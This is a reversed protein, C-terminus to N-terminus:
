EVREVRLMRDGVGLEWLVDMGSVVGGFRTYRGDLHPTASHTIFFQCSETDPGASALGVSGAVFPTRGIETRLTWPMGGYGDGRPCGGQVVFNPVMRHFAKGNYYGATVLSDFAVSTGPCDNVDTAIIIEGKNTTIRYQQGQKLAKLRALDIPHNFPPPRYEPQPRSELHSVAKDIALAVEFDRPLELMKELAGLRPSLGKLDFGKYGARSTIADCVEAILGPDHSNMVTHLILEVQATTRDGYYDVAERFATIRELSSNATFILPELVDAAVNGKRDSAWARIVDAKLYPDRIVKAIADLMTRASDALDENGHRMVLGFLGITMATDSRQGVHDMVMRANLHERAALVELVAQNEAHSMPAGLLVEDSGEDQYLMGYVRQANVRENTRPNEVAIRGLLTRNARDGMKKMALILFQRADTEQTAMHADIEDAAQLVLSDPLRRLADAARASAQGHSRDMFYLIANPDKLLGNRQMAIFSASMLARQVTTDREEMAAEAMRVVTTSDAIFGLAFASTARVAFERDILGGLLCPVSASDQVSAFAMAAAERVEPVTDKLFGCLAPVDRHEQAELVPLLREDAWRNETARQGAGTACGTFVFAVLVPLLVRM